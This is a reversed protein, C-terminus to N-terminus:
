IESGIELDPNKHYKRLAIETMTIWFPSIILTLSILCITFDYTFIGIIGIAYAVSCLLFSMEGIQALLAGGYISDTWCDSFMRLILMNILHNTVYVAVLVTALQTINELIFQFNIQMGISIFFFAVFLVRFSHLTDYIWSSSKSAHIIMGGVFAGLAASIGFWASIAAGGFCFLMALFVQLEHDESIRQSYPFTITKKVYIYVLAAILLVGGFIMRLIDETAQGEGGLLSTFILLPVILIDQTLLISLVDKGLKSQVLNKEQILKIIIASSSLSIVFGLVISRSINWDFLYGIGLVILISVIIQSITGFLAIKWQKIFDPLDIEMGIFFLLLVIGIDGLHRISELDTIVKFGAPGLIAGIIIYGVIYPQHIKKLVLGVGLVLLTM